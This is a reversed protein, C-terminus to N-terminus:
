RHMSPADPQLPASTMAATFRVICAGMGECRRAESGRTAALIAKLTPAGQRIRFRMEAAVDTLREPM